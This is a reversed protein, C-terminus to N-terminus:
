CFKFKYSCPDEMCSQLHDAYNEKCHREKAVEVKYDHQDFVTFIHPANMLIALTGAVTVVVYIYLLLRDFILSM